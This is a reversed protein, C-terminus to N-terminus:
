ASCSDSGTGEGRCHYLEQVPAIDLGRAHHKASAEGQQEGQCQAANDTDGGVDTQSEERDGDAEPYVLPDQLGDLLRIFPVWELSYGM